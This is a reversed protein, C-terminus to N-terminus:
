NKGFSIEYINLASEDNGSGLFYLKKNSAIVNSPDHVIEFPSSDNSLFISPSDIILSGVIPWNDRWFIERAAFKSNGNNEKDYYHFAVVEKNKLKQDIAKSLQFISVHGPGIFRSKSHLFESGGFDLMNKGEKDLYPGFISKSRGVRVSYSSNSGSCCAGWNVFLYYYNGKKFLYPAEIGALEKIFDNDIDYNNAIKKFRSSYQSTQTEEPFEKLKKTIPNLEVIYIGGAHSGFVLYLQGKEEFVAPDMARPTSREEGSSELVIGLDIWSPKLFTGTNYAVGIADQINEDEEDFVTFFLTKGDQSLSPADFEGSPNWEQIDEWWSGAIQDAQINTTLKKVIGIPESKVHDVIGILFLFLSGKICFQSVFNLSHQLFQENESKKKALWRFKNL